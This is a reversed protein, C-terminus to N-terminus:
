VMPLAANLSVNLYVQVIMLADGGTVSSVRMTRVQGNTIYIGRAVNMVTNMAQKVLTWTTTNVIDIVIINIPRQGPSKFINAMSSKCYSLWKGPHSITRSTRPNFSFVQKAATLKKPKFSCHGRKYNCMSRDFYLVMSLHGSLYKNKKICFVLGASRRIYLLSKLGEMRFSVYM